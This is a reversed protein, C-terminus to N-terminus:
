SADVEKHGCGRICHGSVPSGFGWRMEHQGMLCKLRGLALQKFNATPEALELRYAPILCYGDSAISDKYGSVDIKYGIYKRSNPNMQECLGSMVKGIKGTIADNKRHASPLIRVTDGISFPYDQVVVPGRYDSLNM